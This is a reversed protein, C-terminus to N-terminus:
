TELPEADMWDPDLAAPLVPLTRNCWPEAAVCLAPALVSEIVPAWMETWAPVDDEVPADPPLKASAVPLPEAFLPDTRMRVAASAEAFDPATVTEEESEEVPCVPPTATVLPTAPPMDPSTDTVAPFEPTPAPPDNFTKDPWLAVDAAGDPLMSTTLPAASPDPPVVPSTDIEVALVLVPVPVILM